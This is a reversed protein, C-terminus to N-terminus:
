AVRRPERVAATSAELEFYTEDHSLYRCFVDALQGGIRRMDEHYLALTLAPQGKKLPSLGLEFGALDTTHARRYSPKHLPRLKRGDGHALSNRVLYVFDAASVNAFGTNISTDGVATSPGGHVAAVDPKSTSLLWPADLICSKGLSGRAQRAAHDAASNPGDEVWMRQKTWLVVTSFLAFTQTVNFTTRPPDDLMRKLRNVVAWEVHHESIGGM